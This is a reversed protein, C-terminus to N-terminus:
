IKWSPFVEREVQETQGTKEEQETTLLDVPDASQEDCM